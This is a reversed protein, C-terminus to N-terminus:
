AITCRNSQRLPALKPQTRLAAPATPAQHNDDVRYIQSLGGALITPHSPAVPM